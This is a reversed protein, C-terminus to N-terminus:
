EQLLTQLSTQLIYGCGAAGVATATFERTSRKEASGYRVSPKWVTHVGARRQWGAFSQREETPVSM